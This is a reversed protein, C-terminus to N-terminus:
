RRSLELSRSAAGLAVAAPWAERQMDAASVSPNLGGQEVGALQVVALAGVLLCFGALERVAYFAKTM